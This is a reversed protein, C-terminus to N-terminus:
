QTGAALTPKAYAALDLAIGMGPQGDPASAMAIGSEPVRVALRDVVIVPSATEIAYLLHQLGAADTSLTLQLGLRMLGGEQHAPMTQSSGVDAGTSAVIRQLAQQFEASLLTPNSGHFFMAQEASGEKLHALEARMAPLAQTLEAYRTMQMRAVALRQRDAVLRNALPVAFLNWLLLVAVGLITLAALRSILPSITM